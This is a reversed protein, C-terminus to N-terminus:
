GNPWPGRGRSAVYFLAHQDVAGGVMASAPDRVDIEILRM